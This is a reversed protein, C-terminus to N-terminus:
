PVGTVGIDKLFQLSRNRISGQVITAANANSHIMLSYRANQVNGTSPVGDINQGHWQMPNGAPVATLTRAMKEIIGGPTLIYNEVGEAGAGVLDGTPRVNVVPRATASTANWVINYDSTDTGRWRMYAEIGVTAVGFLDSNQTVDAGTFVCYAGSFCQPTAFTDFNASDLFHMNNNNFDAYEGPTHLPAIASDILSMFKFGTKYDTGNLCPAYIETIDAYNGDSVLGDVFAQIADMETQDLGSMRDFVAQVEPSISSITDFTGSVVNSDGGTNNQVAYAFFTTAEDLGNALIQTHPIEAAQNASDDAALGDSGQGAKIQAISPPTVSQDVVWFLTGNDSTTDIDILATTATVGSIVLNSLVAVPVIGAPISGSLKLKRGSNVKGANAIKSSDTMRDDTTRVGSRVKDSVFKTGYDRPKRGQPNKSLGGVSRVRATTSARGNAAPGPRKNVRKPM